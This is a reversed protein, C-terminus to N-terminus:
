KILPLILKAILLLSGHLQSFWFGEKSKVRIHWDYASWDHILELCVLLCCVPLQQQKCNLNRLAEKKTFFLFIRKM